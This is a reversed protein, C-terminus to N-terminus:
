YGTELELKLDFKEIMYFDYGHYRNDGMYDWNENFEEIEKEDMVNYEVPDPYNVHGKKYYTKNLEENPKTSNITEIEIIEYYIKNEEDFIQYRVVLVFEENSYREIFEITEGISVFSLDGDYDEIEIDLKDLEELLEEKKLVVEVNCDNYDSMNDGGCIIVKNEKKLSGM